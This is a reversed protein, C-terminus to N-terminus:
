FRWAMFEGLPSFDVKERTSLSVLAGFARPPVLDLVKDDNQKRVIPGNQRYHGLSCRLICDLSLEIAM